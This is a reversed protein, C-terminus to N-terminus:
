PLYIKQQNISSNSLFYAETYATHMPLHCLLWTCTISTRSPDRSSLHHYCSTLLWGLSTCGNHSDWGGLGMDKKTSPKELGSSRRWISNWLMSKTKMLPLSSSSNSHLFPAATKINLQNHLLQDYSMIYVNLLIIPIQNHRQTSNDTLHEQEPKELSNKDRLPKDNTKGRLLSPSM